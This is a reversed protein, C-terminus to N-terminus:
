MAVFTDEFEEDRMCVTPHHHFVARPRGRIGRGHVHVRAFWTRVPCEACPTSRAESVGDRSVWMELGAVDAKVKDPRRSARVLEALRAEVRKWLAKTTPAAVEGDAIRARFGQGDDGAVVVVFDVCESSPEM